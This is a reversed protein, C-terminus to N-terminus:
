KPRFPINSEVVECKGIEKKLLNKLAVHSLSPYLTPGICIKPICNLLTTKKQSDSPPETLEVKVYPVLMSKGTRFEVDLFLKPKSILRWESEESFKPHKLMPALALFKDWVEKSKLVQDDQNGRFCDLIERIFHKVIELQVSEEYVCKVLMFGQKAVIDTLSSAFNFGISFGGEDPCYGRWQSLQNEQESFSCVYIGDFSQKTPTSFNDVDKSFDELFRIEKQNVEGEEKYIEVSKQYIKIAQNFEMSDNLFLLNTAWLQRKQIIGLLGEQSTYHYLYGNPKPQNNLVNM